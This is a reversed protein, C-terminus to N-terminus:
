QREAGDRRGNPYGVFEENWRKNREFFDSTRDGHLKCSFFM